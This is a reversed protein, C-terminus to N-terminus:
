DVFNGNYFLSFSKKKYDDSKLWSKYKEDWDISQYKFYSGNCYRLRHNLKYFQEFIEIENNGSIIKENVKKSYTENYDRDYYDLIVKIM